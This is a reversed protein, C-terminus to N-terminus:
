RGLLQDVPAFDDTLLQADGIFAAVEAPDAVIGTEAAEGWAAIRDTVAAVDLPEASAVLVVNGGDMGALTSRGSIVALHGFLSGATTAEARVFGLPPYDILNMVYMGGPRLVRSVEDLFETTTLHWPVALGGFADGVVLDVSDDPVGEISRRADGVIVQITPSPEFGLQERAVALVRPDLELVTQRAGPRTAELYRPFTFGGGGVHLVDIPRGLGDLYPGAADAFRRVYAFEIDTPDALNVRAHFLRDLILIRGNPDSPDVEVAICYYASETDCPSPSAVALGGLAVAALALVGTRPGGGARLAVTLLLGIAVLLGGVGVILVRTPVLGLLVFGTLLTGTIAGATGIASLRGVISGSTAVDTLTARVLMPGVASLIAAPAVFGVTALTVIAWFGDGLGSPGVAGVIPVAAIAAIGGLVFSPGLLPVPGVVDAARGGLWAGVAIGALIAGIIGTYTALSVGVYPALLRGAAIELVLVCGTALFTLAAAVPWNLGRGRSRRPSGDPAHGIGPREEPLSDM